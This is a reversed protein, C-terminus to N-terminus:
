PRTDEACTFGRDPGTRDPWRETTEEWYTLLAPQMDTWLLHQCTQVCRAIERAWAGAERGREAGFRALENLRRPAALDAALLAGLANIRAQCAAVAPPGAAGRPQAGRPQGGGPQVGRLAAEAQEAQAALDLAADHVMTVLHAETGRPQDEVATLVLDRVAESLRGASAHVATLASEITVTM